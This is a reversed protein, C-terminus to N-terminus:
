FVPCFIASGAFYLGCGKKPGKNDETAGKPLYDFVANTEHGVILVGSAWTTGARPSSVTVMPCLTRFSSPVVPPQWTSELSHLSLASDVTGSLNAPVVLPRTSANSGSSQSSGVIWEFGARELAEKISQGPIVVSFEIPQIRVIERERERESDSKIPTPGMPNGEVKPPPRPPTPPPPPHWSDLRCLPPLILGAFPRTWNPKGSLDPRSSSYLALGGESGALYRADTILLGPKWEPVEKNSDTWVINAIVGSGASGWFMEPNVLSFPHSLFLLPDGPTPGSPPAALAERRGELNFVDPVNMGFNEPLDVSLLALHTVDVTQLGVAKEGMSSVRNLDAWKLGIGGWGLRWSSGSSAMLKKLSSAIGPCPVLSQLTAPLYPSTPSLLVSIEAGPLFQPLTPENSSGSTTSANSDNTFTRSSPGSLPKSRSNATRGQGQGTGDKAVAAEIDLCPTVGSAHTLIWLRRGKLRDIPGNRTDQGANTGSLPESAVVVGTSQIWVTGDRSFHFPRTSAIAGRPDPASARIVALPSTM